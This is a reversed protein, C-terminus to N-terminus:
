APSFPLMPRNVLNENEYIDVASSRYNEITEYLQQLLILLLNSGRSMAGYIPMLRDKVTLQQQIM